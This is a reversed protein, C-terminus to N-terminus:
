MLADMDRAIQYRTYLLICGPHHKAYRYLWFWVCQILIGYWVAVHSRVDRDVAYPGGGWGPERATRM